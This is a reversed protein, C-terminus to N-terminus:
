RIKKEVRRKAAALLADRLIAWLSRGIAKAPESKFIRALKSV